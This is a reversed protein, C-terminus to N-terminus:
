KSRVISKSLAGILTPLLAVAPLKLADVITDCLRHAEEDTISLPPTLKLVHPEYQCYGALVPFSEHRLMKLIYALGTQKGLWKRLGRAVEVEVAILLGFVRVERVAQVSALEKSLRQKILRSAHRVRRSLDAEEARDLVNLLTKYGVEYDLRARMMEPLDPHTSAVKKRVADSYLTLAFPFMMDSTGKGITLLDPELGLEESRLFPGTRYMGTQVEDVFLSYGFRERADQLYLLLKEPLARVGGVAQVL